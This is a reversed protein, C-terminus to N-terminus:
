NVSCKGTGGPIEICAVSERLLVRAGHIMALIAVERCMCDDAEFGDCLIEGDPEITIRGIKSLKKDLMVREQAIGKGDWGM